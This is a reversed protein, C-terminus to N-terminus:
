DEDGSSPSEESTEGGGAEGASGGDSDLDVRLDVFIGTESPATSLMGEQLTGIPETVSAPLLGSQLLEGFIDELRDFNVYLGSLRETEAFTGGLDLKESATLPAPGDGEGTFMKRIRTKPIANTALMLTDEHIYARVPASRPEPDDENSGADKSDSAGATIGGLAGPPITAELVRVAEVKEDGVELAGLDLREEDLGAVAEAITSLTDADGFKMVFLAELKPLARLPNALLKSSAKGGIGYLFLGAQGDLNKIVQERIDLDAMERATAFQEEVLNKQAKAMNDEATSWISSWDLDLRLGLLTNDTAYKTFDAPVSTKFTDEFYTQGQETLGVWLRSTIRERDSTEVVLGGGDVSNRIAKAYNKYRESRGQLDQRELIPELNLYVISPRDGAAERYKQFGSTEHLSKADEQGGVELVKELTATPAAPETEETTMQEAPYVLTVLKGDYSWVVPRGDRDLKKADSGAVQTTEASSDGGTLAEEFAKKDEVYTHVVQNYDVASLAFSSNPAIGRDKWFKKELLDGFSADGMFQAAFGSDTQASLIRETSTLRDVTARTSTTAKRFKQLDSFVLAMQTDPPLSQVAAELRKESADPIEGESDCATAVGVFVLLTSLICVAKLRRM